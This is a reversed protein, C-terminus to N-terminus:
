VDDMAEKELYADIYKDVRLIRRYITSRDMYEKASLEMVSYGKRYSWYIRTDEATEISSEAVYQSLIKEIKKDDINAHKVRKRM